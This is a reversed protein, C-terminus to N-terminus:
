PKYEKILYDNQRFTYKITGSIQTNYYAINLAYLNDLVESHPHSFMNNRGSSIIAERAGITKLFDYDSSTRSGHHGLRIIEAKVDYERILLREREKLADGMILVSYNNIKILTIISNMNEDDGLNENFIQMNFSSQYEQVVNGIEVIRQELENIENNNIMVSRVNMKNIINEADGMHDYHGHTLILLDIKSIGMSKMFRITNNSITFGVIGGTDILIVEKRNYILTSDGQGVDLFYIYTNSDLFFKLRFSLILLLGM